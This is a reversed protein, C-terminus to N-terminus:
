VASVSMSVATDAMKDVAHWCVPILLLLLPVAGEALLGRTKADVGLLYSDFYYIALKGNASWAKTEALPTCTSPLTVGLPLGVREELIVLELLDNTFSTCAKVWCYHLKWGYWSGTAGKLERWGRRTNSGWGQFIWVGLDVDDLLDTNHQLFLKSPHTWVLGVWNPPALGCRCQLKLPVGYKFFEGLMSWNQQGEQGRAWGHPLRTVILNSDNSHATSHQELQPIFHLVFVISILWM